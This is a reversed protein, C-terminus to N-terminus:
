DRIWDTVRYSGRDYIINGGEDEYAKPWSGGEEGMKHVWYKGRKFTGAGEQANTPVYHTEPVHGLFRKTKGSGRSNRGSLIMIQRGDATVAAIRARKDKRVQTAKGKPGNAFQVQPSRGMGVLFVKKNRPGPIEIQQIDTPFPIGWFKKYRALAKRGQASKKIQALAAKYEPSMPQKIKGFKKRTYGFGKHWSNRSKSRRRRTSIM